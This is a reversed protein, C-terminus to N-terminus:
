VGVCELMNICSAVAIQHAQEASPAQVLSLLNRVYKKSFTKVCVCACVFVRVRVLVRAYSERTLDRKIGILMQSVIETETRKLLLAVASVKNLM